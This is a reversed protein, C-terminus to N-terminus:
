PRAQELEQRLVRLQQQMPARDPNPIIHVFKDLLDLNKLSYDAIKAADLQSLVGQEPLKLRFFFDCYDVATYIDAQNACWARSQQYYDCEFRQYASSYYINSRVYADFNDVDSPDQGLAKCDCFYRITFQTGRLYVGRARDRLQEMTSLYEMYDIPAQNGLNNVIDILSWPKHTFDTIFRNKRNRLLEPIWADHESVNVAILEDTHFDVIHSTLYPSEHATSIINAQWVNPNATFDRAKDYLDDMDLARVMVGDQMCVSWDDLVLFNTPSGWDNTLPDEYWWKNQILGALFNGSAGSPYILTCPTRVIFSKFDRFVPHNADLNLLM